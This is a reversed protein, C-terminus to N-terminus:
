CRRAGVIRSARPDHVSDWPRATPWIPVSAMLAIFTYALHPNTSATTSIWATGTLILIVGIALGVKYLM